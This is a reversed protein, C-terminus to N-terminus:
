APVPQKRAIADVLKAVSQPTFPKEIVPRGARGIFRAAGAGLTDGTIFGIRDVLAPREAAIWDYLAPGDLGPMRLDSLILDYDTGL